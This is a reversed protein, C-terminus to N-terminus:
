KRYHKWYNYTYMYEKTSTGLEQAKESYNTGSSNHRKTGSCSTSCSALAIILVIIFVIGMLTSSASVEEKNSPNAKSENPQKAGCHPCTVSNNKIFKNCKICRQQSM